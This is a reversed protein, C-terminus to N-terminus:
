GIKTVPYKSRGLWNDIDELAWPIATVAIVKNDDDLRLLQDTDLGVAVIIDATEIADARQEWEYQDAFRIVGRSTCGLLDMEKFLERAVRKAWRQILHRFEEQDTFLIVIRKKEPDPRLLSYNTAFVFANKLAKFNRCTEETYFRIDRM